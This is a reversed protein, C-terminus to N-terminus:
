VGAHLRGLDIKTEEIVQSQTLEHNSANYRKCCKGEENTFYPWVNFEQEDKSPDWENIRVQIVYLPPMKGLKKYQSIESDCWCVNPHELLKHEEKITLKPTSSYVSSQDKSEVPIFNVTYRYQDVPPEFKESFLHKLSLAFHEKQANFMHHGKVSGNDKVGLYLDCVQNINLFACLTKSAPQFLRADIERATLETFSLRNHAKLEVNKNEELEFEEEERLM